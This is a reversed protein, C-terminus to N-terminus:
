WIAESSSQILQLYRKDGDARAHHSDNRGVSIAYGGVLKEETKVPFMHVRFSFDKGEANQITMEKSIGKGAELVKDHTVRLPDIIQRPMQNGEASQGSADKLSFFDYFSRNAYLVNMARDAVWIINSYHDIFAEAIALSITRTDDIKKTGANNEFNNSYMDNM